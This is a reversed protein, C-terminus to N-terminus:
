QGQEVETGMFLVGESRGPAVVACRVDAGEITMLHGTGHQDSNASYVHSVHSEHNGIQKTYCHSLFGNGHDHGHLVVVPVDRQIRLERLIKWLASGVRNPRHHLAVVVSKVSPVPPRLTRNAAHIAALADVKGDDGSDLGLILHGRILEAWPCEHVWGAPDAFAGDKDHNGPVLLLRRSSLGPNWNFNPNGLSVLDGTLIVAEIGRQEKLTRSAAAYARRNGHLDSFHLVCLPSVELLGEVKKLLRKSAKSGRTELAERIQILVEPNARNEEVVPELDSAFEEWCPNPM